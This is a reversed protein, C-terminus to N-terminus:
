LWGRGQPEATKILVPPTEVNVDHYWLLGGGKKLKKRTVVSCIHVYM